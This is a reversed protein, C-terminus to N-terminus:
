RKNTKIRRATAQNELRTKKQETTEEARSTSQRKAQNELRTKMEEATEEARSTSQRKAQNELRIRKQEPEENQRFIIKFFIPLSDSM